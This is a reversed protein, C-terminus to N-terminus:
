KVKIPELHPHFNLRLISSGYFSSLLWRPGPLSFSSQLEPEARGRGLEAVSGPVSYWWRQWSNQQPRLGSAASVGRLMLTESVRTPPQVSAQPLKTNLCQASSLWSFSTGVCASIVQHSPVESDLRQD